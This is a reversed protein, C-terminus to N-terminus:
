PARSVTRTTTTVSTAKTGAPKPQPQAAASDIAWGFHWEGDKGCFFLGVRTGPSVYTVNGHEDEVPCNSTGDANRQPMANAPAAVVLVVAVTAALLAITTRIRANFM